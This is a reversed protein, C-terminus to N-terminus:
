KYHFQHTLLFFFQADHDMFLIHEPKYATLLEAMSPDVAKAINKMTQATDNKQEIRWQNSRFLDLVCSTNTSFAIACGLSSIFHPILQALNKQDDEAYDYVKLPIVKQPFFRHFFSPQPHWLIQCASSQICTEFFQPLLEQPSTPLDDAQQNGWDIEDYRDDISHITFM